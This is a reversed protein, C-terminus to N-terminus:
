PQHEKRPSNKIAYLYALEHHVPNLTLKTQYGHQQLFRIMEGRDHSTMGDHVEMCIREVQQLTEEAATFLIDYEGGECDMKLYDCCTVGTRKFLEALTFTEVTLTEGGAGNNATSNQVVKGVVKLSTMGNSSAAAGAVVEANHIDNQKLNRRLVEVALPFPEVAIVRGHSTQRAAWVAYDGLAAGIDMVTWGDELPLSVQEYQGELVTEKVVWADMLSFVEFREGNRLRLIKTHTESPALWLSFLVWPNSFGKIMRFISIIYYRFAALKM